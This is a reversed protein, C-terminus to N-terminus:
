HDALRDACHVSDLIFCGSKRVKAEAYNALCCPYYCLRGQPSGPGLNLATLDCRTRCSVDMVEDWEKETMATFSKDRLIGANNVIVHVTGFTDVAKQIIAGGNVVSDVSSVAKGGALFFFFVDAEDKKAILPCVRRSRMLLLLPTRRAITM